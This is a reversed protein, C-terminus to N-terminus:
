ILWKSQTQGRSVSLKMPWRGVVSKLPQDLGKWSSVPPLDGLVSRINPDRREASRADIGQRPQTSTAQEREQHHTSKKGMPRKKRTRPTADDNEPLQPFGELLLEVGDIAERTKQTQGPPTIRPDLSEQIDRLGFV